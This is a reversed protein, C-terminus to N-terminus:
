PPRTWSNAPIHYTNTGQRRGPTAHALAKTPFHSDTVGKTGGSQRRITTEPERKRDHQGGAPELNRLAQTACGTLVEVVGETQEQHYTKAEEKTHMILFVLLIMLTPEDEGSDQDDAGQLRGDGEEQEEKEQVQGEEQETNGVQLTSAGGGVGLNGLSTTHETEQSSEGSPVVSKRTDGVGAVAEEDERDDVEGPRGSATAATLLGVPVHSLYKKEM